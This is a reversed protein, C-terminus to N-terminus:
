HKHPISIYGHTLEEETAKRVETIKIDFTLTKGALAHNDM